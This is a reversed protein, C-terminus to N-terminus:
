VVCVEEAACLVVSAETGWSLIWVCWVLRQGEAWVMCGWVHYCGLHCCFLALARFACLKYCRFVLSFYALTVKAKVVQVVHM